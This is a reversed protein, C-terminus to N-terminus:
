KQTVLLERLTELTVPKLLLKLGLAEVRSRTEDAGDGTVVVIRISPDFKQIHGITGFGDLRPMRLDLLVLPPREHKVVWLAELGNKATWTATGLHRAYDSVLQRFDEDDDVILLSPVATNVAPADTSM